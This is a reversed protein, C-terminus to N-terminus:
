SVVGSISIDCYNSLLDVRTSLFGRRLVSFPKFCAFVIPLGDWTGGRYAWM